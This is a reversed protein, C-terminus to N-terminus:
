LISFDKSDEHLHRMIEQEIMMTADYLLVCVNSRTTKSKNNLM